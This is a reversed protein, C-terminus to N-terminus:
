NMFVNKIGNVSRSYLRFSLRQLSNVNILIVTVQIYYYYLM